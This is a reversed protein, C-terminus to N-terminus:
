WRQKNNNGNCGHRQLSQQLEGRDMGGVVKATGTVRTWREAGDSAHQIAGEAAAGRARGVRWVVTDSGAVVTVVIIVITSASCERWRRRWCVIAGGAIRRLVLYNAPQMLKWRILRLHIHHKRQPRRIHEDDDGNDDDDDSMM